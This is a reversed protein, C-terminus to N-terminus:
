EGTIGTRDISEVFQKQLIFYVVLMPLVNVLTAAMKIAENAVSEGMHAAGWSNSVSQLYGMYSQEFKSLELLLTTMTNQSGPNAIFLSTFYTENWYWVFSFLFSVVFAPVALPLAISYFIKLENCGDVRAAEDLSAPTQKFFQMFILIFIASNLGQGSAAPLVLAWITGLIKYDSFLSYKPVMLVYPPIIFTLLVLILAINRGPFKFRAFGYGTLACIVTQALSPLLSIALTDWLADKVHMVDIAQRLNDLSLSTPIWQVAPDLLDPLSKLSTVAMYLVPYLYVFGLSILIIYLFLNVLLSNKGNTGKILRSTKITPAMEGCKALMSSLRENISAM